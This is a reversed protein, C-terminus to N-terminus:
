TDLAFTLSPWYSQWDAASDGPARLMVVSRILWIGKGNLRLRVRGDDDTTAFTKPRSDNGNWAEVRAGVIPVGARLLRVPLIDGRNMDYPNADPVFEVPLGLVRDFGGRFRGSTVARETHDAGDLPNRVNLLAKASRVFAETGDTRSEGLRSRLEIIHSLGSERLYGEFTRPIMMNLTPTSEYGVVAIGSEFLTVGGAPIAGPTGDVVTTSDHTAVVFRKVHSPNRGYSEADVLHGILVDISVYEGAEPTFSSPKIWFDHFGTL